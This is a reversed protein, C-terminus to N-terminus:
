LSSASYLILPQQPVADLVQVDLLVGPQLRRQEGAVRVHLDLEGPGAVLLEAGDLGARRAQVLRLFRAPLGRSVGCM